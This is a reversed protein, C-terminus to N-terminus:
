SNRLGVYPQVKTSTWRVPCVKPSTTRKGERGFEAYDLRFHLLFNVCLVRANLLNCRLFRGSLSM